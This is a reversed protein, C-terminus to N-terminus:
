FGKKWEWPPIPDSDQWLGRRETRADLELKWLSDNNPASQRNWWALGSRLLEHNLRTGDALAVEGLPRGEADAGFVNVLVQRGLVLTSTFYRATTGFPQNLDPCEVGFLRVRMPGSGNMVEITDGNLVDTVAGAFEAALASSASIVLFLCFIVRPAM